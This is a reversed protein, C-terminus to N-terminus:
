RYAIDVAKSVLRHSIVYVRDKFRVAYAHLQRVHASSKPLLIIDFPLSHFSKMGWADHAYSTALGGFVAMFKKSETRLSKIYVFRTYPRGTRPLDRNLACHVVEHRGDSATARPYSWLSSPSGRFYVSYSPAAHSISLWGIVLSVDQAPVCLPYNLLPLCLILIEETLVSYSSPLTCSFPSPHHRM